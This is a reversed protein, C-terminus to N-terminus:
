KVFWFTVCLLHMCHLQFISGQQKTKEMTDSRVLSEAERQRLSLDDEEMEQCRVTTSFYLFILSLCPHLHEGREEQFERDM